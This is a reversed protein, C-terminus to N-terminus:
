GGFIIIRKNALLYIEYKQAKFDPLTHILKERLEGVFHQNSLGSFFENM